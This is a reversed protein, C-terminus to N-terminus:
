FWRRRRRRVCLRRSGSPTAVRVTLLGEVTVSGVPADGSKAMHTATGHPPGASEPAKTTGHASENLAAAGREFGDDKVDRRILWGGCVPVVGGIVGPDHVVEM